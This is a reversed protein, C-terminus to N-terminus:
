MGDNCMIVDMAGVSVGIQAHITDTQNLSAVIM